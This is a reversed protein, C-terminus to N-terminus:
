SFERLYQMFKEKEIPKSFYYGQLYECGLEVMKNFHEKTEVGEVVIKLGLNKALKITSDLTIMAKPNEFAGWLLSKDIKAIHFPLRYLIELNSYGTGYDDLSFTFGQNQLAFVNARFTEMETAQETETIELNIKEPEIGCEKVIANLRELLNQQMCQVVSLNVEIYELGMQKTEDRNMFRCVDRFAFEGIRTIMGSKEAIPIFEEPSIFGHSTDKLRILAEASTIKGDKTSYIPQYYMEFGNNELAEHLLGQIMFTRNLSQINIDDTKLISHAVAGSYEDVSDLYQALLETDHVVENKGCCILGTHFTFRIDNENILWSRTFEKNIKQVIEEAREETGQRKFMLVFEGDLYKITYCDDFTESLFKTIELIMNKQFERGMTSRYIKLNHIKLFIVYFTKRWKTTSEVITFFAQRNLVQYQEDYMESFRSMTFFFMMLAVSVGFPELLLGQHLYQVIVCGTGIAMYMYTIMRSLFTLKKRYYIISFLSSGIYYFNILYLVILFKGRHYSHNEDLTFMWGTYWNSLILGYNLVMLAIHIIMFFKKELLHEDILSRCYFFFAFVTMTHMTYYMLHGCYVLAYSMQFKMRFSNSTIFDAIIVFLNTVLMVKLMHARFDDVHKIIYFTLILAIMIILAAYDFYPIYNITSGM